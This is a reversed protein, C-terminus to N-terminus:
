DLAPGWGNIRRIVKVMSRGWTKGLDNMSRIVRANKLELSGGLSSRPSNFWGSNLALSDGLRDHFSNGWGNKLGLGADSWWVKVNASSCPEVWVLTSSFGVLLHPHFVPHSVSKPGLIPHIFFWGLPTSSFSILSGCRPPHFFLISPTYFPTSFILAELGM